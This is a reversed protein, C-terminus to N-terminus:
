KTPMTEMEPRKFENECLASKPILVKLILLSLKSYQKKQSSLIRRYGRLTLTKIGAPDNGTNRAKLGKRSQGASFM